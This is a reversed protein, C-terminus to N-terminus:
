KVQPWRALPYAEIALASFGFREGIVNHRLIPRVWRGGGNLGFAMHAELDEVDWTAVDWLSVDWVGGEEGAQSLAQAVSRGRPTQYSFQLDTLGAWVRCLVDARAFHKQMSSDHFMAPGELDHVIAADGADLGDTFTSEEPRGHSYAFGDDEAHCFRPAGDASSDKLVAIAQAQFGEHIGTFQGSGPDFCLLRDRTSRNSFQVAFVVMELDPRYVGQIDALEARDIKATTVEADEWIPERQDDGDGVVHGGLELLQPHGDADMFFVSRGVLVVSGPSTTGISSSVAERTSASQFDDNVEGLVSTISRDRFIYLAENTGLGAYLPASSTQTFTWANNFGGAEYGTNAALEESWVFVTREAAKIFFLKAAYVWPRGFCTAPANTLKTIGGNTTGDWTWPQNAGDNVVLEDNFTTFYVRGSSALTVTATTFNAATLVETWTDSSWDFTYFKGGAIGVTFEGGDAQSYQYLGQVEAGSALALGMVLFGPRGYWHGGGAPYLNGLLKAKRPHSLAPEVADRMGIIGTLVGGPLPRPTVSPRPRIAPAQMAM